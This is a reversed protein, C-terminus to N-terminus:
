TAKRIEFFVTLYKAISLVAAWHLKRIGFIIYIKNETVKGFITEFEKENIEM